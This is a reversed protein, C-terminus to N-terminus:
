LGINPHSQIREPSILYLLDFHLTKQPAPPFCFHASRLFSTSSGGQNQDQVPPVAWDERPESSELASGNIHSDNAAPPGIAFGMTEEQREPVGYPFHEPGGLRTNVNRLARNFGTPDELTRAFRFHASLKQSFGFTYSGFGLFTSIAVLKPLRWKPRAFRQSYV